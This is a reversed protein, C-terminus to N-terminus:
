IQVVLEEEGLKVKQINSSKDKEPTPLVYAKAKDTLQILRSGVDGLKQTRQVKLLGETELGADLVKKAQQPDGCFLDYEMVKPYQRGEKIQKFAEDRDLEKKSNCSLIIISLILITSTAKKM